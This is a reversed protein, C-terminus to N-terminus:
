EEKKGKKPRISRWIPIEAEVKPKSKKKDTGEADEEDKTYITVDSEEDKDVDPTVHGEDSAKEKGEIVPEAVGQNRISKVLSKIDNEKGNM